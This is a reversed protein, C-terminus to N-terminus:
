SETVSIGDDGVSFEISHTQSDRWMAYGVAGALVLLLAAAGYVIRPSSKISMIKDGTRLRAPLAHPSLPEFPRLAGM